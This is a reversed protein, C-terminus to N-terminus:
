STETGLYAKRVEKNEIVEQPMGEAIKEGFNMVMVRDTLRFLERLRHEIMMMTIGELHLKELFPIM